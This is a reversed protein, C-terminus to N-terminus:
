KKGGKKRFKKESSKRDSGYGTVKTGKETTGTTKYSHKGMIPSGTGVKETKAM